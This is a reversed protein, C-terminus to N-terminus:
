DIQDRSILEHLTQRRRALFFRNGKIIVEAPFTRGNYNSSMSSTYAGAYLVCLFEGEELDPLLVNQGIYDSNECIPGVVDFPQESDGQTLPIIKHYAKYLPIRLIETMGADVILFNKASTKKKRIVKTILIGSPASVARGIEFIIKYGEDAIPKFSDAYDKFSPETLNEYDLGLGGGVDVWELKIGKEKLKSLFRIALEVAKRFIEMDKIQSGLHFHLGNPYIKSKFADEYLLFAEEESLGFKSDKKGVGLYPHLKELEVEFKVRFSVGFNLKGGSESFLKKVFKYESESEINLLLIGKQEAQFIEENTKGIGSFVIKKPPFGAREAIFLEGGSVVDAGFGNEAAERILPIVSNSKLSFCILKRYDACRDLLKLRGLFEDASYVFLPTGFEEAIKRLKVEGWSLEGNKYELNIIM